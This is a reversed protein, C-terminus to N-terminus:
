QYYQGLKAVAMKAYFYRIALVGAFALLPGMGLGSALAGAGVFISLAGAIAYPYFLMKFFTGFFNGLYKRNFDLIQSYYMSLVWGFIAGTIGGWILQNLLQSSPFGVFGVYAGIGPTLMMAFYSTLVEAANAIGGYIAMWQM